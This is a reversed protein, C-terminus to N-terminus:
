DNLGFRKQVEKIKGEIDAMISDIEAEKASIGLSVRADGLLIVIKGSLQGWESSLDDLLKGVSRELSKSLKERTSESENSGEREEGPEVGAVGMAKSIQSNMENLYESLEDHVEEFVDPTVVSAFNSQVEILQESLGTLGYALAGENILANIKDLIEVIGEAVSSIDELYECPKSMMWALQRGRSLLRGTERHIDMLPEPPDITDIKQNGDSISKQLNALSKEIGKQDKLGLSLRSMLQTRSTSFSSM